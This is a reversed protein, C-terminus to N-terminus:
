IGAKVMVALLALHTLNIVAVLGHTHALIRQCARGGGSLKLM